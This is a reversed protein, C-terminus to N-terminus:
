LFTYPDVFRGYQIYVPQIYSAADKSFGNALWFYVCICESYTKAAKYYSKKIVMKITKAMKMVTNFWPKTKKM